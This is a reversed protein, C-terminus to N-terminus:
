RCSRPPSTRRRCASAIASATGDVRIQGSAGGGRLVAIGGVDEVARRLDEAPLDDIPLTTTPENM